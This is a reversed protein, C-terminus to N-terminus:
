CAPKVHCPQYYFFGNREELRLDGAFKLAELHAISQLVAFRRDWGLMKHWNSLGTRASRALLLSIQYATKAQGDDFIRRIEGTKEEHRSILEEIRQGPHSYIYEHGPLVLGIDLAKLTLLSDKYQKLPNEIHQVHIAANTAITPLLMDGSFIFKKEPEYLAIHGMTHGPTNIVRLTYEGAQIEEGGFLLVDPQTKSLHLPVPLQMEPPILESVPVGHQQLFADTLPILNDVDSYRIKILDFDKKHLCYQTGFNEKLGTIMGLHDIHCHTIIVKKIDSYSAGIEALQKQMSALAQPSDWGTDISILGEPTQIIYMNVSDPTFGSLTLPMLFIGPLIEKM